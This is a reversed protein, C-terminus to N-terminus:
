PSQNGSASGHSDGAGADPFGNPNEVNAEPHDQNDQGRDEDDESGPPPPAFLLKSAIPQSGMYDAKRLNIMLRQALIPIAINNLTDILVLGPNSDLQSIALIAPTRTIAQGFRIGALAIYYLGGDRRLVRVLRGENGKYHVVLAAGALLFLVATTAFNVYSRVDLGIYIIALKRWQEASPAYCPYGLEKLLDSVPEAPYQIDGVVIFISGIIRPGVAIMMIGVLYLRKAQLLAGLCLALTADCSCFYLAHMAICKETLWCIKCMQRLPSLLITGFTESSIPPAM